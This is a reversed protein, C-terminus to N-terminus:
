GDRRIEVLSFVGIGEFLTGVWQKAEPDLGAKMLVNCIKRREALIAAEAVARLDIWCYLVHAEEEKDPVQDVAKEILEDIHDTM